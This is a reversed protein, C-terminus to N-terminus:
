DKYFSSDGLMAVADYYKYARQRRLYKLWGFKTERDIITLINALFVRDSAQKYDETKEGFTYMFDHIECAKTIPLGWITEPVLKDGLGKGPGCRGTVHLHMDEPPVAWYELPALLGTSKSKVVLAKM